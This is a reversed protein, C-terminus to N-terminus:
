YIDEYDVVERELLMIAVNRERRAEELEELLQLYERELHDVRDTLHKIIEDKSEITETFM